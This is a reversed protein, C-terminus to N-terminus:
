SHGGKVLRKPYWSTFRAAGWIALITVVIAVLTPLSPLLLMMLDAAVMLAFAAAWVATIPQPHHDNLKFTSGSRRHGGPIDAVM